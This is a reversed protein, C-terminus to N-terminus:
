DPHPLRSCIASPGNQTVLTVKSRLTMCIPGLLDRDVVRPGLHAAGMKTAGACPLGFLDAVLFNSTLEM